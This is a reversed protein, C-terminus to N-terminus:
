FGFMSLGWDLFESMCWAVLVMVGAVIVVGLIVIGVSVGTLLLKAIMIGIILLILLLQLISGWDVDRSGRSDASSLTNFNSGWHGITESKNVKLTPSTRTKQARDSKTNAKKDAQKLLKRQNGDVAAEEPIEASVLPQTEASVQISDVIPQHSELILESDITEPTFADIPDFSLAEKEKVEKKSQYKKTFGVHFGRNYRRKEIHLNACSTSVILITLALFINKM